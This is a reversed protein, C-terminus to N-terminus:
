TQDANIQSFRRRTNGPSGIRKLDAEAAIYGFSTWQDSAVIQRFVEAAEAKRGNYLLWNGLGYMISHSAASAEQKKTEDALTEFPIEGKYMLLLKYYGTNEIVDMGARIPLLVKAAEELRNLRRLTMYLWHSTAVVRDPSDSVKLCERYANLARKNQGKLYYALGLHYWINFKLTSTPINRANPQGDPEIQDPKGRMLRAAKELDAIALEFQRVTIHRHGRHRYFRADAPFNRAGNGFVDIAERFKGLYGLRRGLWIVAEPDNPNAEFEARANQLRTDMEQKAAASVPPPQRDLYSQQGRSQGVALITAASLLLAVSLIRNNM